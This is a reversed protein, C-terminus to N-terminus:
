VFGTPLEREPAAAAQEHQFERGALPGAEAEDVIAIGIAQDGPDSLRHGAVLRAVAVQHFANAPKWPRWGEPRHNGLGPKDPGSCFGQKAAKDRNVRAPLNSM